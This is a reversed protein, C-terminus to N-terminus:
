ENAPGGPDADDAAAEGATERAAEGASDSTTPGTTSRHTDRTADRVLVVRAPVGLAIGYDPVDQMVLSNAAVTAMKGIRIGPLITAKVGLYADDELVVPRRKYIDYTDELRSNVSTVECLLSVGTSITVRDGITLDGAQTVHVGRDIAVGRGVRVGSWRWLLARFSLSVPLISALYRLAKGM